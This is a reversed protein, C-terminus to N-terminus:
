KWSLMKWITRPYPELQCSYDDATLTVNLDPLTASDPYLKIVRAKFHSSCNPCVIHPTIIKHGFREPSKEVTVIVLGKGCPCMTYEAELEDVTQNLLKSMAPRKIMYRSMRLIFDHLDYKNQQAKALQEMFPYNM